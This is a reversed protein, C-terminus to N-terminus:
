KTIAPSKRPLLVTLSSGFHIMGTILMPCTASIAVIATSSAHQGAEAPLRRHDQADQAMRGAEGDEGEQGFWATIMATCTSGADAVGEEEGREVDEDVGGEGLVHSATGLRNL